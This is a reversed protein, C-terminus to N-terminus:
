SDAEMGELELTAQELTAQQEYFVLDDEGLVLPMSGDTWHTLSGGSRLNEVAALLHGLDGHRELLAESITTELQLDNVIQEMPRNLLAEVVSLTGAIHAEDAFGRKNSIRGAALEMIRGRIVAEALLPNRFEDAGGTYMLMAIWKRVNRRGLLVLAHRISHVRKRVAFAASNILKLLRYSLEPSQKFLEEVEDIEADGQIKRYLRLLNAKHVPLPDRSLHVPRTFFQGHFYRFGKRLLRQFDEQTAVNGAILQASTNRATAVLLDLDDDTFSDVDIRLYDLRETAPIYAGEPGSLTLAVQFGERRGERLEHLLTESDVENPRFELIVRDRPLLSTFGQRLFAETVNVFVPRDGQLKEFEAKGLGKRQAEAGGPGRFQFEYAFLRRYRDLIPHRVVGVSDM